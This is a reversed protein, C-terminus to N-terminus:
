LGEIWERVVPRVDEGVVVGMHGAGALVEVRPTAVPTVHSTGATTLSAM